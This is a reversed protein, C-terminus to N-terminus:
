AEKTYFTVTAPKVQVSSDLVQGYNTTIIPAGTTPDNIIMLEKKLEGWAVSQSTVTKIYEPAQNQAWALLAEKNVIEVSEATKKFGFVGNPLNQSKKKSDKLQEEAFPRLIIEFHQLERNLREAEKDQWIKIKALEENAFSDNDQLQKRIANIKKLCWNAKGLTDVTFKEQESEQTYNNDITEQM